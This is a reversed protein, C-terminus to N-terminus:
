LLVERGSAASQYIADLIRQVLRPPEFRLGAATAPGVIMKELPLVPTGLPTTSVCVLRSDFTSDRACTKWMCSSSQKM